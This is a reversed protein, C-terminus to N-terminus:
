LSRVANLYYYTDLRETGAAPGNDYQHAVGVKLKWEGNETLSVAIAADNEARFDEFDDLNGSLKLVNAFVAAKNLRKGYDFIAEAAPFIENGASGYAEHTFGVGLGTKFHSEGEKWWTRGLGVSASTRLDLDKFEDRELDIATYWFGREGLRSESRGGARQQNESREGADRAFRGSAHGELTLDEQERKVTLKAAGRFTETNGSQGSIGIEFSGSWNPAEPDVPEAAGADVLEASSFKLIGADTRVSTQGGNAFTVTGVLRTGGRVNVGLAEDTSFLAVEGFDVVVTGMHATEITLKGGSIGTIKGTMTDGNKLAVRDASAAGTLGALVAGIVLYRGLRLM